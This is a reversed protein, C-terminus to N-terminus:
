LSEVSNDFVVAVIKEMKEMEQEPVVPLPTPDKKSKKPRKRLNPSMKLITSNGRSDGILCVPFEPNFELRTIKTKKKQVVVQECLPQYKNINLDYVFCKGDSTVAGFATSSFISWSIDGVPSQLDFSFLAIQSNQSWVKVHWDDSSSLFIDKHFPNWKISSVAMSHAKWRGLYQSSYATSCKYIIGEESGVLFVPSKDSHFAIATGCAKAGEALEDDFLTIVEKTEGSKPDWCKVTGDSSVSCFQDSQWKIAWVPDVHREATKCRYIEEKKLLNFVAVSGDYLGVAVLHSRERSIDLCMVGVDTEFIFGPYSPNKLSYFLLYGIGQRAYDYSGLGVAFLDHYRKSWQTSTVSLKKAQAFNYIWLPLLTGEGDRYEDSEDEFFRFDDAIDLHTNQNVIREMIALSKELSSSQVPTSEKPADKKDKNTKEKEAVRRALEAKYADYIVHQNITVSINERKPPETQVDRERQLQTVTQASREGFNFQNRVPKEAETKHHSARSEAESSHDEVPEIAKTPGYKAEDSDVHILNGKLNFHVALQDVHSEKKFENAAFDFRIINDPAQPNNATLIRTHEEKLEKESLELQDPPKMVVNGKMLDDGYTSQFGMTSQNDRGHRITSRTEDSQTTGANKSKVPAKKTERNKPPM